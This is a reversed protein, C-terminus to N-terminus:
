ASSAWVDRLARAPRAERDHARRHRAREAESRRRQARRVLRHDGGHRRGGCHRARAVAVFVGLYRPVASAVAAWSVVSTVWASWGVVFSAGRGFALEAYRVPGGTREEMAGLAAFSLALPLCLAGTVLWAVISGAGLSASLKGPFLYIGSGVIANVGICTIDFGTLVRRVIRCVVKM